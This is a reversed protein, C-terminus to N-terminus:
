KKAGGPTVPLNGVAHAQISFQVVPTQEITSNNAFILRVDRLRPESALAQVYQAVQDSNMATGRILVPKGREVTIGSLWVTSPALNAITAVIDSLRQAPEFASTLTDLQATQEDNQIKLAADESKIRNLQAIFRAQGSRVKAAADARDFFVLLGAVVVAAWLLLAVRARTQVAGRKRNELTEPLEIGINLRSLLGTSFVELPRTAVTTDAGSFALGATAVIPSCAVKAISFTRCIEAEIEESNDPLPVVRTYRLEEDAIVDIALGELVHEVVACQAIELSRTLLWSGFATPVICRATLGAAKLERTVQRLTEAHVAAVVALRGESNVDKTLRFDFAVDPGGIPLVQGLQLQLVQTVQAKAADPVRITRIFSSRRSLAVVVTKAGSIYPQVEAISSGSHYHRTQPDYVTVRSPSWEIVPM